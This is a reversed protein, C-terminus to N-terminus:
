SETLTDDIDDLSGSIGGLDTGIDNLTDSAEAENNVTYDPANTDEPNVCGLLFLGALILVILVVMIKKM